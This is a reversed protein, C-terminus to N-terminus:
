DNEEREAAKIEKERMEHIKDKTKERKESAKIKRELNREIKEEETVHSKLKHNYLLKQHAFKAECLDCVFTKELGHVNAQHTALKVKTDYSEGCEECAHIKGRAKKKEYAKRWAERTKLVGEKTHKKKMHTNLLSKLVFSQDCESCHFPKELGHERAMHIKLTASDTFSKECEDCPVRRGKHAIKDHRVLGAYSPFSASCGPHRCLYKKSGDEQEVTDAVPKDEKPQCGHVVRRKRARKSHGLRTHQNLLGVLVFRKDCQTCAFPADFGHVDAKHQKCSQTTPFDEDCLDCKARVKDHVVEIHKELNKKTNFLKGCNEKECPYKIGAHIQEHVEWENKFRYSKECYRCKFNRPRTCGWLHKKMKIENPFCRYCLRCLLQFDNLEYREQHLGHNGGEMNIDPGKFLNMNLQKCTKLFGEMDDYSLTLQFSFFIQYKIGFVAFKLLFKLILPDSGFKLNQFIVFKNLLTLNLIFTRPCLLM